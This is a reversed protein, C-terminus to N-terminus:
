GRRAKEEQICRELWELKRKLDDLSAKAQPQGGSKVWEQHVSAPNKEKRLVMALYAARSSVLKRLADLTDRLPTVNESREATSKPADSNGALRAGIKLLLAVDMIDKGKYGYQRAVQEATAIEEPTIDIGNIAIVDSKQPTASIPAFIHAQIDRQSERDLSELLRKSEEALEHEREERITKALALLKPDAPMYIYANQEELGKVWRVFRGVVQRFFMETLVNTAYVGVRLRPIDVGESVMKVSVLWRDRSKSFSSIVESAQPDDSIAVAVRDGTIRELIRAIERAHQQDIAVVLGGASPHEGNRINALQDNAEALVRGMWEGSASIATRLREMARAESLTDQFTARVEGDMTYWAMEGEYTPFFVPRCVDGDALAAGYGYAFDARGVSEGQGNNEYTVFPIPRNDSRFPTGSLLLRFVARDFATALSDGWSLDKGAHHIEDFIVLTRARCLYRQIDPQSAVQQYTVTIGLYHTAEQGHDNEWGYDLEIGINAASKGWQAKLHASPCVIVVREAQGTMLMNHAVKLAFYTKGAGPTAVALFNNSRQQNLTLRRIADEQWPRLKISEPWPRPMSLGGKRLNCTPCLAQGNFVDTKGGVHYPIKHDAHWGPQLTSGCLSCRGQALHYLASRQKATFQRM